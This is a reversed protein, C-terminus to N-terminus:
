EIYLFRNSSILAQCFTAVADVIPDDNLKKAEYEKTLLAQMQTVFEVAERKKDESIEQSFALQWGHSVQTEIDQSLNTLRVAFFRAQATVFDSNLLELSQTPVTSSPRKTCNPALEPLDFPELVALPRSRRVQIYLSRRYQQGEMDIVPGPRGANLNEKGIVWQGTRDAMVPVAKGAMQQDLMGSVSLITDRLVESEMRRVPMSWLLRKQRDVENGQDNRTSTQQYATSTMILRNINKIDWGSQVFEDALWDLLEPHTPRGGLFGFDGPTDVIGVGFHHSWIRNVMVRAVLPHEGSTLLNAFALRRGTTGLSEQNSPIDGVALGSLVSLEGPEVPDLPSDFNGRSFVYTIPPETAPETLARLFEEPKLQEQLKTQRETYTKLDDSAPRDFLYLNGPTVVTSPYKKILAKQEESRDKEAIAHADRVSQQIDEPLKAIEKEFTADIYEQQKKVREAEIEKIKAETTSKTDRDTKTYLSILRNQPAIWSKWNLAPEFIARIRYYDKQSIPDYRHNHCQACGVTLGTLSTTVMKLTESVVANRGEDHGTGSGTGDAVMRLYGTGTLLEVQEPTLDAVDGNILEDGALQERVFQDYPKGQNFSSVVYDRYFFAWPREVDADAQGESDAYGAADLWHRGWREGYLPSALLQDILAEYASPDDNALFKQVAQPTPPLGTLDLYARRILVERDARSSYTLGAEQLRALLFIDIPNAASQANAVQPLSPRVVPKFSWFQREQETIYFGRDITAPEVGEIPAGSAIWNVITTIEEETPRVAVDEPPMLGSTLYDVLLSQDPQSEIFAPGSDGGSLMFRKLRLDLGGGLEEEEGHCHFCHAKLIPRVDKEFSVAGAAFLPSASALFSALCILLHSPNMGKIKVHISQLKSALQRNGACIKYM